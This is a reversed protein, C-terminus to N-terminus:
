FFFFFRCLYFVQFIYCNYKLFFIISLVIFSQLSYYVKTGEDERDVIWKLIYPANEGILPEISEFGRKETWINERSDIKVVSPEEPQGNKDYSQVQLVRSKGFILIPTSYYSNILINM